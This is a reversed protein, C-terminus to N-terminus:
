AGPLQPQATIYLWGQYLVFTALLLSGELRSITGNGAGGKGMFFLTATLVLMLPMDRILVENGVDVPTLLAPVSLVALMNFINSGVINGVALDDEGKLTAAISAALEPLSTGIAVITLGIVLDSVGLATAINVAGWVLIRSSVILLVLGGLTWGLAVTTSMGSPIEEAFEEELPEIAARQRGLHVIWAMSGVLGTAMLLGDLRGLHGDALLLYVGLSVGMLLPFERWLVHSQVVLPAVLASAGLILGINAINSGVANGIALGPNGGLAAMTSVLIEPASTGLGIVTLGILLPDVGLNRALAAAGIVFRDAGWVLVAFGLVIAGISLLM